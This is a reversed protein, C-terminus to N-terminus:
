TRLRRDWELLGLGTTVVATVWEPDETKEGWLEFRGVKKVSKHQSSMFRAIVRGTGEEVLKLNGWSWMSTDKMTAKWVVSGGMRGFDTRFSSSLAGAPKLVLPRKVGDSEVTSCHIKTSFTHLIVDGVVGDRYVLIDAASGSSFPNRTHYTVTYEVTFKDASKIVHARQFNAAPFHYVHLTKVPAATSTSTSSSSTPRADATEKYAPPSSSLSPYSKRDDDAMPDIPPTRPKVSTPNM